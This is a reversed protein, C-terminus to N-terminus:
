PKQVEQQTDSAMDFVEQQDEELIAASNGRRSSSGPTYPKEAGAVPSSTNLVVPQYAQVSKQVTPSHKEENYSDSDCELLAKRAEEIVKQMVSPNSQILMEQLFGEIQAESSRRFHNNRQHDGGTMILLDSGRHGGENLSISSASSEM